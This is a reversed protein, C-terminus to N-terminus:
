LDETHREVTYDNINNLRESQGSGIQDYLYVNYGSDALKSLVNIDIDTIHGGPGGHLYIIPYSKFNSKAKILTYGIKSGSSLNWYQTNIRKQLQPVSYKRPYFIEFLLILIFLLFIYKSVKFYKRNM